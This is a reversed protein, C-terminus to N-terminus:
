NIPKKKAYIKNYKRIVYRQHEGGRIMENRTIEFLGDEIKKIDCKFKCIKVIQFAQYESFCYITKTEKLEMVSEIILKEEFDIDEIKSKVNCIAM